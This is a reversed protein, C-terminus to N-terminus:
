VSSLHTQVILWHGSRKEAVGTFRGGEIHTEDVAIKEDAGDRGEGTHGEDDRGASRKVAIRADLRFAFWAVTGQQSTNVVLNSVDAKFSRLSAFQQRTAEAMTPWGRWIEERETGIHVCDADHAHIREIEDLDRRDLADFFRHILAGIEAGVEDRVRRVDRADRVERDVRTDFATTPAEGSLADSGVVRNRGAQKAAYMRRDAVSFLRELHEGDEPFISIGFSATVPINEGNWAFPADAINRRLAEAVRITGERDTAPMAVVFEEGGTRFAWDAQRLSSRMLQSVHTLVRDGADHGFSDNVPKFHDLDMVIVGVPENQRAAAGTLQPFIEDLQRRNHLGTLADTTALESLRATVYERDREYLHTVLWISVLCIGINSINVPTLVDPDAAFRAILVLLSVVVFILAVTLGRVRGLLFYSLVPMLFIWVFVSYSGTPVSMAFAMVAFLPALFLMARTISFPRRWSLYLLVSLHVALLAQVGALFPQQIQLNVVVFWISAALSITILMLLLLRRHNARSGLHEVSRVNKM